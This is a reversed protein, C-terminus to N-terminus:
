AHSRTTVPHSLRREAEAATTCWERKLTDAGTNRLHMSRCDKSDRRKLELGLFYKKCNREQDNERAGKAGVGKNATGTEGDCPKHEPAQTLAAQRRLKIQPLQMARMLVRVRPKNSDNGSMVRM